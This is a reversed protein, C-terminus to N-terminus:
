WNASPTPALAADRLAALLWSVGPTGLATRALLATAVGMVAEPSEAPLLSVAEQPTAFTLSPDVDSLGLDLALEVLTPM